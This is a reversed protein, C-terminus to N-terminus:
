EVFRYLRRRRGRRRLAGRCRSPRLATSAAASGRLAVRQAARFPALAIDSLGTSAGSRARPSCWSGTPFADRRHPSARTPPFTVQSWRDGDRPSACPPPTARATTSVIWYLRGHDTYWRLTLAGGAPDRAPSTSAPSRGLAPPRLAWLFDPQSLAARELRHLDAERFRTMFGLRWVGARRLNPTTSPYSWAGAAADLHLRARRRRTVRPAPPVAITSTLAGRSADFVHLARPLVSQRRAAADPAAPPRFCPQAAACFRGEQGSVSCTARPPAASAPLLGHWRTSAIPM